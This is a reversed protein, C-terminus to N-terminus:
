RAALFRDVGDGGSDRRLAGQGELYHLHALAEGLAFGMQHRDLQRRFLVPLLDAASSPRTCAAIVEDCRAGHHAALEDIREHVGYFPLNHSPLVLIGSPLAARLKKLSALYRALPDGDPEQTQVSINPSIRPLIQDGAILVGAEACYLCAHEPAHGEGIIVRWTKGGIEIESGEGIRHYVPPVAPVGRRYGGQREAFITSADDDLGARRAFDRRFSETADGSEQAHMRAHLWEKETTWLPADWRESLWAALGIHDPHYHTVVIRRVPRGGLREAFIRNWADRTADLAYGCDVITWGPGDELLWLNIHNLAFPLPMRLWHIGPAIEITEGPAPPTAVPFELSGDM